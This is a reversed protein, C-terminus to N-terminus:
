FVFLRGQVPSERADRQAVDRLFIHATWRDMWRGHSFTSRSGAAPQERKPYSAADRQRSGEGSVAVWLWATCHLAAEGVRARNPKKLMTARM